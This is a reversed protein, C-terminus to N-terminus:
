KSKILTREKFERTVRNRSSMYSVQQFSLDNSVGRRENMDNEAIKHGLECGSARERINRPALLDYNQAVHLALM